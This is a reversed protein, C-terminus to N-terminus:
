DSCCALKTGRPRHLSMKEMWSDILQCAKGKKRWRWVLCHLWLAYLLTKKEQPSVNNGSSGISQKLTAKNFLLLNQPNVGGRAMEQPLVGLTGRHPVPPLDKWRLPAYPCLKWERGLICLWVLPKDLEFRVKWLQWFCVGLFLVWFFDLATDAKEQCLKETEVM